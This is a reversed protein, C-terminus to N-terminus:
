ERAELFNLIRDLEEESHYEIEIKGKKAGKKISVQTGLPEKMREEAMRTALDKATEKKESKKKAKTPKKEALIQELERVSLKEGIIRVALRTQEAKDDLGLLVKAHGMSIMGESISKQVAEPLNQLRLSNAIASRSKGLKEAIQEQTMSFEALLKQYAMSEEMPNLNQRQLNEILSVAMSDQPTFEKVIVPIETLGALRAARWRREGAIIKYYDKEKQVLLPQLVGYQRISDSLEQLKEPDFNKRPQERDPEVTYIDVIQVKEKIEESSPEESVPMYEEQPEMVEDSSFLADLGKGLGRKKM